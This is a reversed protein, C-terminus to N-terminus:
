RSRFGDGSLEKTEIRLLRSTRFGITGTRIWSTHKACATHGTPPRPGYGFGRDRLRRMRRTRIVDMCGSSWGQGEVKTGPLSGAYDNAPMWPSGTRLKMGVRKDSM